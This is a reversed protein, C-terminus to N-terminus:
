TQNEKILHTELYYVKPTADKSFYEGYKVGFWKAASGFNVITEESQITTRTTMVCLFDIAKMLELTRSSDKIEDAAVSSLVLEEAKICTETSKTTLRHIHEGVLPM